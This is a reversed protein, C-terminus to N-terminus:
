QIDSYIAVERLKLNGAQLKILLRKETFKAFNLLIDKSLVGGSSLKKHKDTFKPLKESYRKKYLM